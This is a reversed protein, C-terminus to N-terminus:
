RRFSLARAGFTENRQEVSSSTFISSWVAPTAGEPVHAAAKYRKAAACATEKARDTAGTVRAAPEADAVAARKAAGAPMEAPAAAKAHAKKKKALKAAKAEANAQRLAEVEEPSGNLAVVAQSALAAGGLLEAM